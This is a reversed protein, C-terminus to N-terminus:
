EPARPPACSSAPAHLIGWLKLLRRGNEHENKGGGGEDDRETQQHLHRQIPLSLWWSMSVARSRPETERQQPWVRVHVVHGPCYPMAAYLANRLQTVALIGRATRTNAFTTVPTVFDAFWMSDDADPAQRVSEAPTPERLRRQQFQPQAQAQEARPPVADDDDPDLPDDPDNSIVVVFPHLDPEVARIAEALEQATLAGYNEFYGGDLIRDIVQQRRNRV